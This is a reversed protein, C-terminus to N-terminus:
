RSCCTGGKRRQATRPAKYPSIYRRKGRRIYPQTKRRIVYIWGAVCALACLGCAIYLAGGGTQALPVTKTSRKSMQTVQDEDHAELGSGGGNRLLDIHTSNTLSTDATYRDTVKMHVIAPATTIGGITDNHTAQVDNLDDHGSKINERDWDDARTTFGEEVRGYEFRIGTVHEGEALGLDAVKLETAETTSVGEKWLRWGAYDIARGDEGLREACAEDTLWPNEHGDTLTANAGSDDMYDAPTQDTTYWVNMLGDYDQWGQATTIGILEATGDNAADLVDEVTFEDTWTSSTSRYDLSYDYFGEDSVTVDAKNQLDGNAEHDEAVPDAIEQRKDIEGTIHIPEDHMVVKQVEGTPLVTFDISQAKDYGNPTMEETLTYDGPALADIRHPEKASTWSDIVNGEADTITLKAGEVEAEDTIDRKSIEVKTYDDEVPVTHVPEGETTGDAHITFTRVEPDVLFGAPAAVEQIRWAVQGPALALLAKAEEPSLGAGELEPELAAALEAGGHPLHRIRISGDRNTKLDIGFGEYLADLASQAGDALTHGSTSVRGGAGVSAHSWAGSAISVETSSAAGGAGVTLEYSGPEIGEISATDIGVEFDSEDYAARPLEESGVTLGAGWGLVGESYTATHRMGAEAEISAGDGLEVARGDADTIALEWTGPAVYATGDRMSAAAGDEGTLAFGYGDPVEFAIEAYDYSKVLSIATGGAQGPADALGIALAGEGDAVETGFGELFAPWLDFEAGALPHDTGMITKDVVTETPEDEATAEAFVVETTDNEWSLTFEIPTTDLQHGAPAKTEVFAYRAEGGGLPLEGTEATGDEGTAVHDVVEGAVAQVSGDPSVIDDMAVVDFEAGELGNGEDCWPCDGGACEKRITAKGHAQGDAVRVVTIPSVDAENDIVVKVDEGNLLYPAAAAVERVYYTGPKLAGPLTVRGSDDTTFESLESHNPYWVDQTVPKKDEDLLQFTFGALPVDQGSAADVKVIQIRSSVFDNDVIYHLTSGDAMQEPTVQWDPCPRYGEPTTSEVEHVTYGAEDYPLAGKHAETRKGEGMWPKSPDHTKGDAVAEPNVTAADATSARGDADTTLTGVVEGTTNSIIQFQVGEAPKQLGSGEAGTDMYKVLDIDFAQVVEKFDDKPTLEVVGADTIQNAHVEYEHPTPDLKYGAPAKTETVVIRGLPIGEIRLVGKKDTTGTQEWGPTSLSTVKYEAGAFSTGPQAAGQTATDHKKIVLTVTGPKDSLETSTGNAGTEFSIRKPNITFGQPAKTEVSYYRMHPKLTCSARGHENTTITTIYSNSDAEYIDYTAGARTYEPNSSTVEEDASVKSFDVEVDPTYQFSLIYQTSSGTSLMFVDFKQKDPVEAQRRVMQRGTASENIEVGNTGFGLVNTRVWNKFTASCGYLAAAGDSSSTDAIIIHSLARYRDANMPSGDHWTSPWMSADFGPGGYAFWMDARLENARSPDTLVPEIKPYSGSPPNSRSPNACYAEVGDVTFNHTSVGKDYFISSGVVLHATGGSAYAAHVRLGIIELISNAGTGSCILAMVLLLAM